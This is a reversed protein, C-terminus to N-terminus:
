GRRRRRQRMQKVIHYVASCSLTNATHLFTRSTFGEKDTHPFERCAQPRVAYITCRDDPGLLPCPATKMRYGGEDRDEVLYAAILEERTLRLHAAIRDIDESTLGPEMTKCCHACRTCDIKGFVEEHLHRALDDIREPDSVLKLSRLFRFNRDEDRAANARWSKLLTDHDANVDQEQRCLRFWKPMAPAAVSGDHTM